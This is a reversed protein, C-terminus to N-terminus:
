LGQWPLPCMHALCSSQRTPWKSAVLASFLTGGVGETERGGDGRLSSLGVAPDHTDQTDHPSAMAVAM